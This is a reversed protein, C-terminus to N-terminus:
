SAAAASICTKCTDCSQCQPIHLAPGMFDCMVFLFPKTVAIDYLALGRFCIHYTSLACPLMCLALVNLQRHM